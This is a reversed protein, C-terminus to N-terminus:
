KIITHHMHLPLYEIEIIIASNYGGEWERGGGGKEERIRKLLMYVSHFCDCIEFLEIDVMKLPAHGRSSRCLKYCKTHLIHPLSRFCMM